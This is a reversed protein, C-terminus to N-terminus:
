ARRSARWYDKVAAATTTATTAAAASTPTATGGIMAVARHSVGRGAHSKRPQPGAVRGGVICAIPWACVRRSTIAVLARERLGVVIARKALGCERRGAKRSLLGRQRPRAHGGCRGCRDRRGHGRTNGSRCRCRSLRSGRRSGRRSRRRCGRRSGHRCGYRCGSGRRRGRRRMGGFCVLVRKDDRAASAAVAARGAALTGALRERSQRVERAHRRARVHRRPRRRASWARRATGATDKTAAAAACDREVIRDGRGCCRARAAHLRGAAGAERNNGRVILLAILASALGLGGARRSTRAGGRSERGSTEVKDHRGRRGHLGGGAPRGGAASARSSRSPWRRGCREGGRRPAVPGALRRIRGVVRGGSLM